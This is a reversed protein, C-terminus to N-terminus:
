PKISVRHFNKLKTYFVSCRPQRARFSLTILITADNYCLSLPNARTPNHVISAATYFLSSPFGLRKGLGAVRISLMLTCLLLVWWFVINGLRRGKMIDTNMLPRLPIQSLSFLALWPRVMGLVCSLVLEHLLISFLFTLTIAGFRPLNYCEM